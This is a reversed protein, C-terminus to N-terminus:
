HTDTGSDAGDDEMRSRYIIYLVELGNSLDAILNELTVGGSLVLDLRQNRLAQLERIYQATQEPLIDM